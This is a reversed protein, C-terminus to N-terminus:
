KVGFVFFLFVRGTKTQTASVGEACTVNVLITTRGLGVIPTDKVTISNGPEMPVLTGSKTGGLILLGGTLTITWHISTAPVSGTNTIVASVGLGGIIDLTFNISGYVSVVKTTEGTANYQDTVRVTVPYSGEQDWAHAATATTHNEEYISDNNWDWEYWRLTGDPDHSTSADFIIGQHPQPHQPTWSFDAVPPQNLAVLAKQANLRGTGIYETSNYPDVHECLVAKIEDPSLLPNKAFLLGAVGAVMPTAASTGSAATYNQGYGDNNMTVHYTPMTSFILNGPAAIDLWDGYNSGYGEGWDKPSCRSDNQNTAAVATVNEYAAPYHKASSNQNGAAACLFVGKGYAYNVADELLNSDLFTFSMSIVKAGNDAAYIIGAATASDYFGGNESIIKVPMFRCNWGVGAIGISNNTYAAAIGACFTGHGYGDDPNNDNYYFDWGSVDDIYGNNDDDIGNNPIEDTNNWIKSALDPHTADIGTDIIAIVVEPGGTEIDWAEPADIDCDPIGMQGANDLYWQNSFNQDNPVACLHGIFNPEAYVVDPCTTYDQVLSPIDSQVPVHLLYIDDLNTGEAQPFVKEYAYVQHQENLSALIERSFMMDKKLKVIFEGPIFEMSSQDGSSKTTNTTGGSSNGFAVMFFLCCIFLVTIQNKM